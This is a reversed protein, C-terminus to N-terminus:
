SSAGPGPRDPGHRVPCPSGPHRPDRRRRERWAAVAQAAARAEGKLQRLEKVRTWAEDPERPNRLRDVLDAHEDELWSQRGRQTVDDVLRRKVELLYAVDSAAYALQAEGLPRELWDTLRDAKPLHIGLIREHLASLSPSAMGIFGAAVQTDFIRKPVVGVAHELVELDQSAAHMVLLQDGGLLLSLERVDVALPDILAVEVPSAIQLLALRPRYTRERHFETDLALEDHAGLRGILADLDSQATVMHFKPTARTM